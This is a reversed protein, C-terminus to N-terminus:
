SDRRHRVRVGPRPWRHPCPGLAWGAALTGRRWPLELPTPWWRAPVVRPAELTIPQNGRARDTHAPLRHELVCRRRARRPRRRRHHADSDLRLDHQQTAVPRRAPAPTCVALAPCGPRVHDRERCCHSRGGSALQQRARPVSLYSWSTMGTLKQDAARHRARGSDAPPRRAALWFISQMTYPNTGVSFEKDSLDGGISSFGYAVTTGLAELGEVGIPLNSPTSARRALNSSPASVMTHPPTDRRSAAAITPASPSRRRSVGVLVRVTHAGAAHGAPDVGVTAVSGVEAARDLGAGRDFRHSETHVSQVGRAQKATTGTARGASPGSCIKNGEASEGIHSDTHGVRAPHRTEQTQTCQSCAVPAGAQLRSRRRNFPRCAQRRRALRPRYFSARDSCKVQSFSGREKSSAATARVLPTPLASGCRSSRDAEAFPRRPGADGDPAPPPAWRTCTWPRGSRTIM